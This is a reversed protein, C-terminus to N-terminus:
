SVLQVPLSFYFPQLHEACRRSRLVCSQLRVQHHKSHGSRCSQSCLRNFGHCPNFRHRHLRIENQLHKQETGTADLSTSPPSLRFYFQSRKHNMIKRKHTQPSLVYVACLADVYTTMVYCTTLWLITTVHQCIQRWWLNKTVYTLNPFINIPKQNRPLIINHLDRFTRPFIKRFRRWCSFALDSQCVVLYRHIAPIHTHYSGEGADVIQYNSCDGTCDIRVWLWNITM